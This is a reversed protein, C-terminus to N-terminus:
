EEKRVVVIWRKLLGASFLAAEWALMFREERWSREGFSSIYRTRVQRDEELKENRDMLVASYTSSANSASELALSGDGITLAELLGHLSLLLPTTTRRRQTSCRRPLFPIACLTFLPTMSTIPVAPATFELSATSGPPLTNRLKRLQTTVLPYPIFELDLHTNTTVSCCMNAWEEQLKHAGCHIRKPSRTMNRDSVLGNGEKNQLFYTSMRWWLIDWNWNSDVNVLIRWGCLVLKDRLLESLDEYRRIQVTGDCVGQILGSLSVYITKSKASASHPIICAYDRPWAVHSPVILHTLAYAPDVGQDTTSTRPFLFCLIIIALIIVAACALTTLSAKSYPLYHNPLHLSKLIHELQPIHDEFQIIGLGFKLPLASNM